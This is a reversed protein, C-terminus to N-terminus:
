PFLNWLNEIQTHTHLGKTLETFELELQILFEPKRYVFVADATTLLYRQQQNGLFEREKQYCFRSGKPSGMQYPQLIASGEEAVSHSM